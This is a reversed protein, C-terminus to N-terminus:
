DSFDEVPVEPPAMVVTLGAEEILKLTNEAMDLAAWRANADQDYNGMPYHRKFIVRALKVKVETRNDM